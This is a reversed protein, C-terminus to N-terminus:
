IHTDAAAAIQPVYVNNLPSKIVNVVKLVFVCVSLRTFVHFRRFHGVAVAVHLM